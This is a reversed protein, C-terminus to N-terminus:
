ALPFPCGRLYFFLSHLVFLIFPFYCVEVMKPLCKLSNRYLRAVRLNAEVANASVSAMARKSTFIAGLACKKALELPENGAGEMGDIRATAAIPLTKESSDSSVPKNFIMSSCIQM